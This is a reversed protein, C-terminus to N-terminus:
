RDVKQREKKEAARVQKALWKVFARRFVWSYGDVQYGNPDGYELRWERLRREATASKMGKVHRFCDCHIELGGDLKSLLFKVCLIKETM